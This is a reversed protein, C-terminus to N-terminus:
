GKARGKRKNSPRTRVRRKGRDREAVTTKSHAKAFAATVYRGTIASRYTM